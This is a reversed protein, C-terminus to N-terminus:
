YYQNMNYSYFSMGNKKEEKIIHRFAKTKLGGLSFNCDKHNAMPIKFEFELMNDARSAAVEILQGGCM